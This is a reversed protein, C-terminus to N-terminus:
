LNLKKRWKKNKLDEMKERRRSHGTNPSEQSKRKKPGTHAKNERLGGDQGKDRKGRDRGVETEDVRMVGTDTNIGIRGKGNGDGEM